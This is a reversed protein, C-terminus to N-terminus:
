AQVVTVKSTSGAVNWDQMQLERSFGGDGDGASGEFPGLFRRGEEPVRLGEMPDQFYEYTNLLLLFLGSITGAYAFWIGLVTGNDETDLKLVNHYSSTRRLEVSVCLQADTNGVAAFMDADQVSFVTSGIALTSIFQKELPAGGDQVTQDTFAVANIEFSSRVSPADDASRVSRITESSNPADFYTVARWPRSELGQIGELADSAVTVIGAAAYGSVARTTLSVAPGTVNYLEFKHLSWAVRCWASTGNMPSASLTPKLKTGAVASTFSSTACAVGGFGFLDVTVNVTCPQPVFSPPVKGIQASVSWESSRSQRGASVFLFVGAMIAVVASGLFAAGGYPTKQAVIVCPRIRTFHSHSFYDFRQLLPWLTTPFCVRAALMLGVAGAFGSGLGVLLQNNFADDETKIGRAAVFVDQMTSSRSDTHQTTLNSQVGNASLSDSTSGVPCYAGPRCAQCASPSSQGKNPSFTGPGCPLCGSSQWM